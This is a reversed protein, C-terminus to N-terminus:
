KLYQAIGKSPNNVEYSEAANASAASTPPRCEFSGALWRAAVTPELAKNPTLTM